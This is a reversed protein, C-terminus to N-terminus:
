RSEAQRIVSLFDEPSAARILRDRLDQHRLLRSIRSLVKVHLSAASEPGVLMMVLRVPRGDLAQFDVPHRTRGAVLVLEGVRATKGHPIAVEGGIGTSLVAERELVADRIAGAEGPLGIAGALFVAMEEIIDEKCESELPIKVRDETLLETLLLQTGPFHSDSM